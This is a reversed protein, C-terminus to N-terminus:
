ARQTAEHTESAEHAEAARKAALRQANNLTSLKINPLMAAVVIAVLALPAVFLFIDGIAQGYAQEVVVRLAPNLEAIKPIVGELLPESGVVADPNTTRLDAIGATLLLDVRAALVTGMISMGASGGLSRFFTVGSSAVGMQDPEVTNQVILVLNQMLMGIGAGMIFMGVAVFWYPTDWRIFGLMVMGILLSVAGGVVYRKWKGFRSILQGAITSSGLVGAMLPLTLMSAEIVSYGRAIQMYQGLYIMTSFMGVGVAVSGIVSLTFTRNKFLTLPILPEEARLEVVVALALIVVGVGVMLLSPLSVWDFARGVITVWILLSSVGISILLIGAYDIKIPRRETPLKLTLQLMIIALIALPAAVFFNWRWGITDTFLGGLLPGGVTAVAMMAGFIGMYKGREIPSLVEALVIVGLVGLGGIGLGQIVRMSILWTPDTALGALMSGATFIILAVQLLMKKNTLDAFKGWVPTSVASILLTAMIVWTFTAQTGGIDAIIIPMSTGVVNMSLMSVFTSLFIGALAWHKARGTLVLPPAAAHNAQHGATAHSPQHGANAHSPQHGPDTVRVHAPKDLQDNLGQTPQLSRNQTPGATSTQDVQEIAGTSPTNATHSTM